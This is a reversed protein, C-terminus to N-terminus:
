CGVRNLCLVSQLVSIGKAKVTGLLYSFFFSVFFIDCLFSAQFILPTERMKM